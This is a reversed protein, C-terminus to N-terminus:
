RGRLMSVEVHKVIASKKFLANFKAHVWVARPARLHEWFSEQQDGAAGFINM